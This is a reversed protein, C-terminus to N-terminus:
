FLNSDIKEKLTDPSISVTHPTKASLLNIYRKIKLKIKQKNHHKSM